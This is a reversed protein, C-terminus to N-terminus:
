NPQENKETTEEVPLLHSWHTRTDTGALRGAVAVIGNYDHYRVVGERQAGELRYAVRAGEPLAKKLYESQQKFLAKAADLHEKIQAELRFAEERWIPTM